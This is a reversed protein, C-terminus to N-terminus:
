NWVMGDERDESETRYEEGFDGEHFDTAFAEFPDEFQVQQGELKESWKQMGTHTPPKWIEPFYDAFALMLADALDPSKLGDRRM